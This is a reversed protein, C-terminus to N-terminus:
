PFHVDSRMESIASRQELYLGQAGDARPNSLVSCFFSHSSSGSQADRIWLVAGVLFLQQSSGKVWPM